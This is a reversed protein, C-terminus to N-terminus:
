KKLIRRVGKLPSLLFHGLRYSFSRHLQRKYDELKGFEKKIFEQERILTIPHPYNALYKDLHKKFLQQEAVKLKDGKLSANRSLEKIRYFFHTGPLKYVEEKKTVFRLWFEWDEWGTLFNTDYGGTAEFDKKRFVAANFILNQLLMEEMSYRPVELKGSLAGFFECECYVLKVGSNNILVEVANQLYNPGIKDDADLPLIFEGKAVEIGINRAASVGGNPVHIVNFGEKSKAALVDITYPDTSGDNVIIIEYSPHTQAQVSDIAEQLFAGQNYCPIIVSVM